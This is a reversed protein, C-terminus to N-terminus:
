SRLDFDCWREGMLVGIIWPDCSFSAERVLMGIVLYALNEKVPLM